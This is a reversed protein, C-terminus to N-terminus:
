SQDDTAGGISGAIPPYQVSYTDLYSCNFVIARMFLHQLKLTTEEEPRIDQAAVSVNYLGEVVELKLRYLTLIFRVIEALANAERQSTAYATLWVSAQMSIAYLEVGDPGYGLQHGIGIPDDSKPRVTVGVGPLMEAQVPWGEYIPLERRTLIASMQAVFPEGYSGLPLAIPTPDQRLRKFEAILYHQLVVEPLTFGPQESVASM